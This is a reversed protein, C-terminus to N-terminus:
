VKLGQECRLHSRLFKLCVYVVVENTIFWTYVKSNSYQRLM